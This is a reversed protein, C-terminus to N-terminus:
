LPQPVAVGFPCFCLEHSGNRKRCIKVSVKQGVFLDPHSFGVGKGHYEIIGTPIKIRYTKTHITQPFPIPGYTIYKSELKDIVIGEVSEADKTLCSVVVVLVFCVLVIYVGIKIM